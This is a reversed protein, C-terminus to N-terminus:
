DHKRHKDGGQYFRSVSHGLREDETTTALYLERRLRQIENRGWQLCEKQWKIVAVPDSIDIGTGYCADCEYEYFMPKVTGKGQCSSCSPPRDDITVEEKTEAPLKIMAAPEVDFGFSALVSENCENRKEIRKQLHSRKEALVDFDM